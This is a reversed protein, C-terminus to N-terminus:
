EPSPNKNSFLRIAQQLVRKQYASNLEPTHSHYDGVAQLLNGHTENLYSRLILASAAINFCGDSVLRAATQTAPMRTIQSLLGIWQTNIQMLGLDDSGNTNHHVLGIAGREVEWIAPLVRPPLDYRIAAALMCALLPAPM